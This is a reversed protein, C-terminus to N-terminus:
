PTLPIGGGDAPAPTAIAGLPIGGGDPPPPTATTTPTSMTRLHTSGHHVPGAPYLLLLSLLYALFMM